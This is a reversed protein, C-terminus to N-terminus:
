QRSVQFLLGFIFLDEIIFGWLVSWQCIDNEHKFDVLGEPDLSVEEPFVSDEFADVLFFEEVVIKVILCVSFDKFSRSLFAIERRVAYQKFCDVLVFV